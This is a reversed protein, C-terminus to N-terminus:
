DNTVYILFEKQKAEKGKLPSEMKGKFSLRNEKCWEKIEKFIAEYDEKKRIAKIGEWFKVEFPPKILAVVECKKNFHEVASLIAGRFSVFTLDITCVDIKEPLNFKKRIDI